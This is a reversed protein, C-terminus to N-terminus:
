GRMDLRVGSSPMSRRPGMSRLPGIGAGGNRLLEVLGHVQDRAHVLLVQNHRLTQRLSRLVERHEHRLERSRGQILQGLELKRSACADIAPRDLRKLALREDELTAALLTLLEDLPQNQLANEDTM